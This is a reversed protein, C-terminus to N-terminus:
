ILRKVSSHKALNGLNQLQQISFGNELFRFYSSLHFSILLFIFLQNCKVCAIWLLTRYVACPYVCFIVASLWFLFTKLPFFFCFPVFCPQYTAFFHEHRKSKAVLSFSQKKRNKFFFTNSTKAPWCTVTVLCGPM